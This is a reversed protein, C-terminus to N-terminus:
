SSPKVAPKAKATTKRPAARKRVPKPKPSATDPMVAPEEAVPTNIVRADAPKPAVPAPASSIDDDDGALDEIADRVDDILSGTATAPRYEDTEVTHASFYVIVAESVIRLVVLALLGYVLIELIGWLGNGFGFRFSAVFHAVAWLVIAALGLLYLITVLKPAIIKNLNFLVNSTALKKLDDMQM